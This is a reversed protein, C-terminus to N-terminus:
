ICSQANITKEQFNEERIDTETAVKDLHYQEDPIKAHIEKMLNAILRYYHATEKTTMWQYSDMQEWAKPKKM